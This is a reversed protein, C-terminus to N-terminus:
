NIMNSTADTLPAHLSIIDAQGLITNMEAYEVGLDQEVSMVQRYTDFYLIRSLQFAKLREAVARGIRGFGVIGWVKGKLEAPKIRMQEWGGSKTSIHAHLM